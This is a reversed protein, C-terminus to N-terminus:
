NITPSSPKVPIHLLRAGSRTGVQFLETTLDGAQYASPGPNTEWDPQFKEM